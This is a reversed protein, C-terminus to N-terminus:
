LSIQIGSLISTLPQACESRSFLRFSSLHPLSVVHQGSKNRYRVLQTNSWGSRIRMEETANTLQLALKRAEDSVTIFLRVRGENAELAEAWFEKGIALGEAKQERGLTKWDNSRFPMAVGTLVESASIGLRKCVALFQATLPSLTTRAEVEYSNGREDETRFKNEHETRDPNLSIFVVNASYLTQWPCFLLHFGDAFKLEQSKRNLLQSWDEQSRM